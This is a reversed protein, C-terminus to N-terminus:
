RGSPIEPLTAGIRWVRQPTRDLRRMLSADSWHCASHDLAYIGLLVYGEARSGPTIWVDGPVADGPTTPHAWEQSDALAVAWTYPGGHAQTAEVLFEAHTLGDRHWSSHLDIERGLRFSCAGELLTVCDSVGFQYPEAVVRAIADALSPASM